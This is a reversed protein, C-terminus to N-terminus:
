NADISPPTEANDDFHVHPLYWDGEPAVHGSAKVPQAAHLESVLNGVLTGSAAAAFVLASLTVARLVDKGRGSPRVKEAAQKTSPQFPDEHGSIDRRRTISNANM